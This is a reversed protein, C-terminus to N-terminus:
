SKVTLLKHYPSNSIISHLDVGELDIFVRGHSLKLLNKINEYSVQNLTSGFTLRVLSNERMTALTKVLSHLTINTFHFEVSTEFGLIRTSIDEFNLQTMKSNAQVEDSELYDIYPVWNFRGNFCVMCYNMFSTKSAQAEIALYAFELVTHVIAIIISFLIAKPSVGLEEIKAASDEGFHRRFYILMRVQLTLQILTEFTMQTITRM